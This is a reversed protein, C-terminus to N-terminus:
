SSGESDSPTSGRDGGTGAQKKERQKARRKLKKERNLRKKKDKIHQEKEDLQKKAADQKERQAKERVRLIIRRKKGPRKRKGTPVGTGPDTPTGTDTGKSTTLTITMVKWPKELGWRRKKSDELIYEASVAAAQYQRSVDPSPQEALYYSIPRKAVVFGGDGIISDDEKSLVVTHSADEDRFLRFAFAEEEAEGEVDGGTIEGEGTGRPLIAKHSPADEVDYEPTTVSFDLLSALRANLEARLDPDVQQDQTDEEAHDSEYLDERRVRKADPLEFM